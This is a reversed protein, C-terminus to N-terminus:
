LFVFYFLIFEIYNPTVCNFFLWNIKIYGFQANCLDNDIFDIM